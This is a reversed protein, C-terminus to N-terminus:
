TMNHLSQNSASDMLFRTLPDRQEDDFRGLMHQGAQDLWVDYVANTAADM